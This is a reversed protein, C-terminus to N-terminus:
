QAYMHDKVSASGLYWTGIKNSPTNQNNKEGRGTKVLVILDCYLHVCYM